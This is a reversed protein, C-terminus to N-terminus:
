PPHNRRILELPVSWVSVLQPTGFSSPLAEVLDIHLEPIREIRLEKLPMGIGLPCPDLHDLDKM